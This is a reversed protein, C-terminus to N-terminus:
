RAAEEVAVMLIDHVRAVTELARSVEISSPWPFDDDWENVAFHQGIAINDAVLRAAQTLNRAPSGRGCVRLYVPFIGNGGHWHGYSNIM